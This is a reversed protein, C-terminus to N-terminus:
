MRDLLWLYVPSSFQLKVTGNCGLVGYFKQQTAPGNGNFDHDYTAHDVFVQGLEIDDLSVRDVEIVSDEVIDGADNIRTHEHTKDTLEISLEHDVNDWDAFEHYFEHYENTLLQDQILEGDFWFRM